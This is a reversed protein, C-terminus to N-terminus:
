RRTTRPSGHSVSSPAGKPQTLPKASIDEIYGTNERYLYAVEYTTERLNVRVASGHAWQAPRRGAVATITNESDGIHIRKLDAPRIQPPPPPPTWPDGM